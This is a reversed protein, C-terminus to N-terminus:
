GAIGTFAFDINGISASSGTIADTAMSVKINYPATSGPNIASPANITLGGTLSAAILNQLDFTQTPGNNYTLIVNVKSLDVNDPNTPASSVAFKIALPTGGSNKLYFNYGNTPVSAGGPVLNNFVYGSLSNSYSLNDQSLQLNASATQITNGIFKIQQSQLAAYTVGSVMVAMVTTVGIAKILPMKM